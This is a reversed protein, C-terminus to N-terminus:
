HKRTLGFPRGKLSASSLLSLSYAGAKSLFMLSPQFLKGPVFVRAKQSFGFIVDTFLKIVNLGLRINV